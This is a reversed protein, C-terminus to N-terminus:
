KITKSFIHTKINTAIKISKALVNLTLAFLRTFALYCKTTTGQFSKLGGGASDM